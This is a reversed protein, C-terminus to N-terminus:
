GRRAPLVECCTAKNLTTKRQMPDIKVRRFHSLLIRLSASHAAAELNPGKPAFLCPRGAHCKLIAMTLLAHRIVGNGALRILLLAVDCYHFLLNVRPSTKWTADALGQLLGGLDRSQRLGMWEELAGVLQACGVERSATLRKCTKSETSM